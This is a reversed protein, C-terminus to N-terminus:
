GAPKAHYPANAGQHLLWANAAIRMWAAHDRIRSDASIVFDDVYGRMIGPMILEVTGSRRDRECRTMYLLTNTGYEHLKLFLPVVDSLRLPEPLGEWWDPEDADPIPIPHKLPEARSIAFIKRGANLGEYFKRRLYSLRMAQQAFLADQDTEIDFVNTHWRIGYRDASLIFEGPDNPVWRMKLEGTDGVARFEDRLGTVLSTLPTSAFRLLGLTKM